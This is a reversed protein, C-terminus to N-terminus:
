APLEARKSLLESQGAIRDCAAAHMAKLREVECWLRRREDKLEDIRKLYSERAARMDDRVAPVIEEAEANLREVEAEAALARRIAVGWGVQAVKAEEEGMWLDIEDWVAYDALLDRSMDRETPELPVNWQKETM